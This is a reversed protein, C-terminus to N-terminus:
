NYNNKITIILQKLSEVDIVLAWNSFTQFFKLTLLFTAGNERLWKSKVIAM